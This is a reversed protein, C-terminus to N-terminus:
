SNIKHDKKIIEKSKTVAAGKADKTEDKTADDKINDKIDTASDKMDDISEKMEDKMDKMSDTMETKIDKMANTMDTMMNGMSFIGDASTTTITLTALLTLLSFKKM